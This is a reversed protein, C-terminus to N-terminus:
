WNYEFKTSLLRVLFFFATINMNERNKRLSTVGSASVNFIGNVLISGGQRYVYCSDIFVLVDRYRICFVQIPYILKFELFSCMFYVHSSFVNSIWKFSYIMFRSVWSSLFVVCILTIALPILGVHVSVVM